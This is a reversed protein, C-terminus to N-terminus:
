FNMRVGLTITRPNPYAGMDMGNDVDVSNASFSAGAPDIGKYGTITFLNQASLSFRIDAFKTVKRPLTYAISINECRLYDANELWKSSNGYNSNTAGPTPMTKGVNDFHDKATVFMSAGVMSNMAFDVLNLRQAGFAANFFVNFDWNKYTITNNWGLTFDPNACGLVMKDEGSPNTTIQGDKTYYSDVFEGKDNKTLGAWKYGYFTGIAEGEKVITAPDVTGPSPSAGYIVPEEATLKTVKNKLYSGNLSSTWQLNDNQIIRGTITLDIGKNSVEGANVWYSTGGVYNPATRKLLADSTRKDFYDVSVTLRNKFFGLDIGLDFQKVKEWTLDPTALGNAWYGTYTTGTGFNFSTSTMLGLTSYPDIDQNGIIGYSARIKLDSLAKIDKMFEEKTVTWAAAISPFYGWKQNTFRSSGDARFTGTLMYKDAYNYMVRAVGSLLNWNSYSNSADRTKANKVDWYGVQEASLNKGTIEMYRTESSTAEWVATATLSHKNWSGMYTLNNTTQLVMNYTNTNGMGNQTQVRTSSFSYGKHDSYDIGNTTTFTLGKLINFKLDVHGSVVNRKRDNQNEHLMGYPNNQINNYPDTNYSGKDNYMEMTPSYNLGVWIPNEQSQNFGAGSGNSQSLNVDATLELWKYLKSHVNAKVSYRTFDTDTIVGKTNLYNGSVYFQTDENGKSIAVKYNQTIGTRLLVDMWDIGPNSGDLYGTLADRDAGKYDVLAQAYEKTGMMEPIHYANSFGVSADFVVQTQGAKGTKTTVLVVGNAGRSGYIATSSADKLIQMSQIDEPNIGELGSERVIGDVVYLPDNSKNISSAGRVRIKLDGGPVGSSTVSIGSVRGQLADEIRTVPQDKFQKNDMVAVSGALDAKRVAGYGIVVVEDLAESDEHLTVTINRQGNVPVEVPKYGIYSFVLTANPSVNLVFKGDMDTIAGNHTNGKEVVNVGILPDGNADNVVGTVQSTQQNVSYEVPASVPVAMANGGVLLLGVALPLVRFLKEKEKKMFYFNLNLLKSLLREMLFPPQAKETGGSRFMRSESM